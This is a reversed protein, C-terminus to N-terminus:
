FSCGSALVAPAGTTDTPTKPLDAMRSLRRGLEALMGASYGPWLREIAGGRAVLAVYASREVGCARIVRLDPDALVPYPSRHRDAWERAESRDGGMVGLFAVRAGYAEHLPRFFPEAAESCPCGAQIFVLVTPRDAAVAAPSILRGDSAELEAGIVRLGAMEGASALMAPTVPHNRSPPLLRAAMLALVAALLLGASAWKRM